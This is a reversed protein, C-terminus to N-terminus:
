NPDRTYGHRELRAQGLHEADLVAEQQNDEEQVPAFNPPAFPSTWACLSPLIMKSWARRHGRRLGMM